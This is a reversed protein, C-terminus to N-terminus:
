GGIVHICIYFDYNSLCYVHIFASPCYDDFDFTMMQIMAFKSKQLSAGDCACRGTVDSPDLWRVAVERPRPAM